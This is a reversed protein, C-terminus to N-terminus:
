WNVKKLIHDESFRIGYFALYGGNGGDGTQIWLRDKFKACVLYQFYSGYIEKQDLVNFQNDLLYITRESHEDERTSGVLCIRQNGDSTVPFLDYHKLLKDIKQKYVQEHFQKEMLYENLVQPLSPDLNTILNQTDPKEIYYIFSDYFGGDSDSFFGPPIVIDPKLLKTPYIPNFTYYTSVSLYMLICLIIMLWQYKRATQWFKLIKSRWLIKNNQRM